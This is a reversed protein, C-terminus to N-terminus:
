EKNFDSKEFNTLLDILEKWEVTKNEKVKTMIKKLEEKFKKDAESAPTPTKPEEKKEPATIDKTEKPEPTSGTSQLPREMANTEDENIGYENKLFMKKLRKNTSMNDEEKLKKNEYKKYNKDFKSLNDELKRKTKSEKEFTRASISNKKLWDEAQKKFDRETSIAVRLGLNWEKSHFGSAYRRIKEMAEEHPLKNLQHEEAWDAGDEIDDENLRM